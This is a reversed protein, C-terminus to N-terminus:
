FKIGINLNIILTSFKLLCGFFSLKMEILLLQLLQDIFHRDNSDNSYKVFTRQCKNWVSIQTYLCHKNKETTQNFGSQFKNITVNKVSFKFIIRLYISSLSVLIVWFSDSFWAKKSNHDPRNKQWRYRSFSTAIVVIIVMLICKTINRLLLLQFIHKKRIKEQM